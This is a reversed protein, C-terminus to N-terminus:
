GARREWDFGLWRICTLMQPLPKRVYHFTLGVEDHELRFQADLDIWLRCMEQCLDGKWGKLWSPLQFAPTRLRLLHAEYFDRVDQSSSKVIAVLEKQALQREEATECM